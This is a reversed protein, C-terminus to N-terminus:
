PVASVLWVKCTLLYLYIILAPNTSFIHTSSYRCGEKFRFFLYSKAFTIFSCYYNTVSHLYDLLHFTFLALRWIKRIYKYINIKFNHKSIFLFIYHSLNYICELKCLTCWVVCLVHMEDSLYISLKHNNLKPM